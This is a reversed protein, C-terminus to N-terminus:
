LKDTMRDVQSLLSSKGSYWRYLKSAILIKWQRPRLWDSLSAKKSTTLHVHGYRTALSDLLRNKARKPWTRPKFIVRKSRGRAYNRLSQHLRDIARELALTDVPQNLAHREWSEVTANRLLALRAEDELDSLSKGLTGANEPPGHGFRERYEDINPTQPM